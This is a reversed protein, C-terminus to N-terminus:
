SRLGGPLRIAPRARALVAVHSGSPDVLSRLPRCESLCSNGSNSRAQPQQQQSSAATAPSHPVSAQSVAVIDCKLAYVPLDNAPVGPLEMPEAPAVEMESQFM